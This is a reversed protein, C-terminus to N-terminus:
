LVGPGAWYPNQRRAAASVQNALTLAASVLPPLLWSGWLEGQGGGGGSSGGGIGGGRGALGGSWVSAGGGGHRGMHPPAQWEHLHHHSHHHQHTQHPILALLGATLLQAVLPAAAAVRRPGPALRNLVSGNRGPLRLPPRRSLAIRHHQPNATSCSPPAPTPISQRAHPAAAAPMPM